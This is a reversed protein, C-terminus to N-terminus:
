SKSRREREKRLELALIPNSIDATAICAELRRDSLQDLLTFKGDPEPWVHRSFGGMRCSANDCNWTAITPECRIM